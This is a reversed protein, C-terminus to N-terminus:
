GRLPNRMSVAMEVVDKPLHPPMVVGVTTIMPRDLDARSSDKQRYYWSALRRIAQEVDYPPLYTYIVESGVLTLQSTGNVARIVNLTNTSITNIIFYEFSTGQVVKCLQFAEFRTDFNLNLGDADNVVITNSTSSVVTDQSNQWMSNIDEHWGWVGTVSNANQSTEGIEFFPNLSTTKLEIVDYPSYNPDDGCKLIVDDLDIERTGGETYLSILELLNDKLYLQNNMPYPHNYLKTAKYPSLQYGAINSFVKGARLIYKKLVNDDGTKTTVIDSAKFSDLSTLIPYYM